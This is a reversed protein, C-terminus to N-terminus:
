LSPDRGRMLEQLGKGDKGVRYLRFANQEEQEQYHPERFGDFYLYQGDRSWCPHSAFMDRPTVRTRTKTRTDYFFVANIEPFDDKFVRTYAKPAKVRRTFALVQPNAPNPLFQDESNILSFIDPQKGMIADVPTKALLAGNEDIQFLHRMNHFWLGKGDPVWALGFIRDLKEEKGQPFLLRRSSGDAQIVDLQVSKGKRVALALRDGAPSWVPNRIMEGSDLLTKEQGTALDLVQLGSGFFGGIFIAAELIAEGPAEKSNPANPDPEKRELCFAVRKGDPSLAPFKGQRLRVPQEAGPPLYYIWEDRLFAIGGPGAPVRLQAPTEPPGPEPPAQPPTQSLVLPAGALLTLALVLLLMLRWTGSRM